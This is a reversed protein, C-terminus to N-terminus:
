LDTKAAHTPEGFAGDTKAKDGFMTDCPVNDPIENWVVPAGPKLADESHVVFPLEDYEGEVAEAADMAQARTKAGVMAVAEGVHRAKDAPLLMHPGAFVPGG